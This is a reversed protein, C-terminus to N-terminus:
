SFTVQTGCPLSKNAVGYHAHFGCATNGGDYYWSAVSQQYATLWGAGAKVSGNASDGAFRLRLRERGGPGSVRMEFGGFRATRASAITRWRGGSRADLRVLRGGIKPLLRGRVVVSQGSLSNFEHSRLTFRAAVRVPRPASPVITVAAGAHATSPVVSGTRAVIRLLGNRKLALTFRFGGRRGVTASAVNHWNVGARSYQLALRHGADAAPTRGTVAFRDGYQIQRSALKFTPAAQEQGAATTGTTLAYASAPIMLTLVGAVVQV